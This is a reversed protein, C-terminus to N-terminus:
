SDTLASHGTCMYFEQWYLYKRFHGLTRM